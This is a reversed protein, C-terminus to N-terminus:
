WGYDWWPGAHRRKYAIQAEMHEKSYAGTLFSRIVQNNRSRDARNFTSQLQKPCGKHRRYGKIKKRRHKETWRYYSVTM